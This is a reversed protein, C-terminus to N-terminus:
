YFMTGVNITLFFGGLSKDYVGGLREIGNGLLEIFYYRFNLGILNKKSIGFNAGIGIYGGAAM